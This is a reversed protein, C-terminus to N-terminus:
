VRLKSLYGIYNHNFDCFKTLILQVTDSSYLFFRAIPWSGGGGTQIPSFQFKKEIRQVALDNRDLHM